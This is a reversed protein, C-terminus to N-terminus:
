KAPAPRQLKVTMAKQDRKLGLTLETADAFFPDSILLSPSFPRGNITELLDGVRLGEATVGAPHVGVVLLGTPQKDPGTNVGPVAAAAAGVGLLPVAEVGFPLLLRVPLSLRSAMALGIRAEAESLRERAEATHILSARASEQVDRLRKELDARHQRVVLLRAKAEDTQQGGRPDRELRREEALAQDYDTRVQRAEEAARRGAEEHHGIEYAAGRAEARATEQIPNLAESLRVSLKLQERQPARLVTFNAVANGGLEKLMWSMDEIGGVEQ